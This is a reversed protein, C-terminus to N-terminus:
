GKWRIIEKAINAFYDSHKGFFPGNSLQSHYIELGGLNWEFFVPENNEDITVDWAIFCFMPMSRHTELALEVAKQYSPIKLGGFRFGSPLTDFKKANEYYGMNSLVGNDDINVIIVGTGPTKPAVNVAISDTTNCLLHGTLQIPEGNVLATNIRFTNVCRPSMKKLEDCQVVIRQVVYDKEYKPFNENLETETSILKLNKGEGSLFTPKIIVPLHERIIKLADEKTIINFDHDMFRGYVNRVYTYPLPLKPQFRDFYCKDDWALAIHKNNLTPDLYVRMIKEPCYRVDFEGKVNLMIEHTLFDSGVPHKLGWYEVIEKKQAKSLKKWNKYDCKADRVQRRSYDRSFKWRFIGHAMNELFLYLKIYNM